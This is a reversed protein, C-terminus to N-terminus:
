LGGFNACKKQVVTYIRKLVIEDPRGRQRIRDIKMMTVIDSGILRMKVNLM